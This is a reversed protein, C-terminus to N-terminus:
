SGTQWANDLHHISFCRWPKHIQFGIVVGIVDFRINWKNYVHSKSVYYLMAKEIRRRTRITVSHLAQSHTPRAKVEVAVLTKHKQALIDIEGVPTKYRTCIIRYGKLILYFAAFREAWIGRKYTNKEKIM